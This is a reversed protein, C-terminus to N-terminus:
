GAFTKRSWGVNARPVDFFNIYIRNEAVGYPALLDTVDAQIKGNSAQAIAGISYLCGLATPDDTGGFIVSAKDNICVAILICSPNITYAHKPFVPKCFNLFILEFPHILVLVKLAQIYISQLSLKGVYSEPKATASAIAKSCAAHMM